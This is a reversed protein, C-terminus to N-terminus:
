QENGVVCVCVDKTVFDSGFIYVCSDESVLWYSDKREESTKFELYMKSCDIKRQNGQKYPQTRQYFVYPSM